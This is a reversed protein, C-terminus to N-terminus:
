RILNTKYLIHIYIYIDLFQKYRDLIQKYREQNSIKYICVSKFFVSVTEPRMFMQYGSTKFDWDM